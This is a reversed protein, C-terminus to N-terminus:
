VAYRTRFGVSTEPLTALTVDGRRRLTRGIVYVQKCQLCEKTKKFMDRVM